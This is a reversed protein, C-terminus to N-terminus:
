SRFKVLSISAAKDSKMTRTLEHSIGDYIELVEFGADPPVHAVDLLGDNVQAPLMSDRGLGGFVSAHPNVVPFDTGDADVGRTVDCSM